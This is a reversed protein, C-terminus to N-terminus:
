NFLWSAYRRNDWTLISLSNGEDPIINERTFEQLLETAEMLDTESEYEFYKSPFNNWHGSSSDPFPIKGEGSFSIETISVSDRLLDTFLDCIGTDELNTGCILAFSNEPYRFTNPHTITSFSSSIPHIEIREGTINVSYVDQSEGRVLSLKQTGIPLELYSIAPGMATLCIESKEIAKFHITLEGKDFSHTFDITYNYCPFIKTSVFKLHPIPSQQSNFEYLEEPYFEVNTAHISEQTESINETDCSILSSFLFIILLHIPKM